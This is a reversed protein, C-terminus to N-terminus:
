NGVKCYKELVNTTAQLLSYGAYGAHSTSLICSASHSFGVENMAFPREVQAMATSTGSRNHWQIYDDFSVNAEGEISSGPTNTHFISEGSHSQTIPPMELQSM